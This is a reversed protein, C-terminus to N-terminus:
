SLHIKSVLELGSEQSNEEVATVTGLSTVMGMVLLSCM